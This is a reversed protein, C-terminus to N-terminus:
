KRSVAGPTRRKERVRISPPRPSSLRAGVTRDPGTDTLALHKAQPGQRQPTGHTDPDLAPWSPSWRVAAREIRRQYRHMIRSQLLLVLAVGTLAGYVGWRATWSLLLDGSASEVALAVVGSSAGSMASALVWLSAHRSHRRLVLQQATGVVGWIIFSNVARVWFVNATVSGAAKGVAAAVGLEVIVTGSIWYGMCLGLSSVVLWRWAEQKFRRSCRRLGLWQAVWLPTPGFFLGLTSGALSALIQTLIHSLTGGITIASTWWFWLVLLRRVRRVQIYRNDSTVDTARRVTIANRIEGIRRGM